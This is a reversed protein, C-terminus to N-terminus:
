IGATAIAEGVRGISFDNVHRREFLAVPMHHVGHRTGDNFADLRGGARVVGDVTAVSVEGVERAEARREQADGVGFGVIYDFFDARKSIENAWEGDIAGAGETVDVFVAEETKFDAVEVGAFEKMADFDLAEFDAGGFTVAAGTVADAERRVFFFDPEGVGMIAAQVEVVVCHHRGFVDLADFEAIFGAPHSEGDVTLISVGRGAVYDVNFGFFDDAAEGIFFANCDLAFFKQFDIKFAAM